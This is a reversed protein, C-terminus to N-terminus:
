KASFFEVKVNLNKDCVISKVIQKTLSRKEEFSLCDIRDIIQIQLSKKDIVKQNNLLLQKANTENKIKKKLEHKELDLRKKQAKGDDPTLVGDVILSNIRYIKAEFENLRRELSIRSADLRRLLDILLTNDDKTIEELHDPAMLYKVVEDWIKNEILPTNLSKRSVCRGDEAASRKRSCYYYSGVAKGNKRSVSCRYPKGCHSCIIMDKLLYENKVNRRAYCSRFTRREQIQKWEDDDFVKRDLHHIIESREVKLEKRRIDKSDRFYFTMRGNYTPDTLIRTVWDVHIAGMPNSRLLRDNDKRLVYSKLNIGNAALLDCIEKDSLGLKQKDLSARLSDPLNVDDIGASLCGIWRVIRLEEEIPEWYRRKPEKHWQFGLKIQGSPPAGSMKCVRLKGLHMKALDDTKVQSAMAALLTLVIDAPKESGDCFITVEHKRFLDLTKGVVELNESRFLRNINFVMVTDVRGAKIFNEQLHHFATDERFTEFNYGNDIFFSPNEPSHNLPDCPVFEYQMNTGNLIGMITLLDKLKEIQIEITMDDAQQDSSVRVYVVLRRRRLPMM